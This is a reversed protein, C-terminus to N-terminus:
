HAHAAYEDRRLLMVLLMLPFMAVHTLMMLGMGDVIGTWLLPFLVVPAFMAGCMELTVLPGHGRFLMWAAMGVSMDFAMLLYALEPEREFSPAVGALEFLYGLAFMGVFMAIIMEVYHWAFRGWSRSHRTETM